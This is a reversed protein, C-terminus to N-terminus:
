PKSGFTKRMALAALGLGLMAYTSPEPVPPPLDIVSLSTIAAGVSLFDGNPGTFGYTVSAYYFDDLNLYNPLTASSYLSGDADGFLFLSSERNTGSAYTSIAIFDTGGVPTDHVSM